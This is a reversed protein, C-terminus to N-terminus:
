KNMNRFKEELPKLVAAIKEDGGHKAMAQMMKMAAAQGRAAFKDNLAKEQEASPKPMKETQAKLAAMQDILKELQPLAAKASAEDKIGDFLTGLQEMHQLGQEALSEQSPSGCATALFLLPLVALSSHKM